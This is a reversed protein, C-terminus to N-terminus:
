IVKRAISSPQPRLNTVRHPRRKRLPLQTLPAQRPAGQELMLTPLLVRRLALQSAEPCALAESFRTTTGRSHQAEVFTWLRLSASVRDIRTASWPQSQSQWIRQANITAQSVTSRRPAREADLPAAADPTAPTTM